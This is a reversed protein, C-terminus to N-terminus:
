AQSPRVIEIDPEDKGDFAGGADGHRLHANKQGVM